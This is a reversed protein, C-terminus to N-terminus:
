EPPVASLFLGPQLCYAMSEAFRANISTELFTSFAMLWTPFLFVHCSSRRRVRCNSPLFLLSCFCHRRCACLAPIAHSQNFTGTLTCAQMWLLVQAWDEATLLFMKTEVHSFSVSFCGLHNTSFVSTFPLVSNCFRFVSFMEYEKKKIILFSFYYDPLSTFQFSSFWELLILLKDLLQTPFCGYSIIKM